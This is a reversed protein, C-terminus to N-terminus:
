GQRRLGMGLLGLGIILSALLVKGMNGMVPVVLPTGSCTLPITIVGANNSANSQCVLDGSLAPAGDAPTTCSVTIVQTGGNAAVTFPPTPSVLTFGVPAACSTVDLAADGSNSLTTTGSAVTSPAAVIAIAAPNVAAVASPVGAPCDITATLAAPDPDPTANQACTLTASVAALQRVCSVGIDPANAGATAPATLTRTGGGTITFASAGTAPITCTLTLSATAAGGSVVNVPVSGAAVTNTPGVPPQVVAGLSATPPTNVVSGTCNVTYTAPTGINSGNHTVNLTQAAIPGAAVADCGVTVVVGAAGQAVTQAVIPSVSLPAVLAQPTFNLTTGVDGTNTVTFTVNTPGGGVVDNINITGGAATPASTYQPSVVVVNVPSHTSTCSPPAMAGACEPNTPVAGSLTLTLPGPPTGPAITMDFSCYPIPGAGIIVASPSLVDLAGGIVNCSQGIAAPQTASLVPGTLQAPLALRLSADTTVGDGAFSITYTVVTGAQGSPSNSSFTGASVASCGILSALALIKLSSNKM